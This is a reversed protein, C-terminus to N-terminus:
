TYMRQPTPLMGSYAITVPEFSAGGGNIAPLSAAVPLSEGAMMRLSAEVLLNRNRNAEVPLSEGPMEPLSAEVLLNRNRNAAVPLSEGSTRVAQRNPLRSKNPSAGTMVVPLLNGGSNWVCRSTVDSSIACM